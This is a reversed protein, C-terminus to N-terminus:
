GKPYYKYYKFSIDFQWLDVTKYFSRRACVSIIANLGKPRQTCHLSKQFAKDYSLHSTLAKPRIKNISLLASHHNGFQGNVHIQRSFWFMLFNSIKCTINDTSPCTFKSLSCSMIYLATFTGGSRCLIRM